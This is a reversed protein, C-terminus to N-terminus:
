ELIQVTQPNFPPRSTCLMVLDGEDQYSRGREIHVVSGAQVEQPERGEVVFRGVGSIIRYTNNSLENRVHAGLGQLTVLAITKDEDSLLTDVEFRAYEGM